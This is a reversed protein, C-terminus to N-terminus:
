VDHGEGLLKGKLEHAKRRCRLVRVRLAGESVDFHQSMEQYSWGELILTWLRRCDRSSRALVRRLLDRSVSTRQAGPNQWSITEGNQELEQWRWKYGARIQRLCAHNVIWSLYTRLSSEGRFKKQQFLRTIELRLDQLVDEFRGELRRQFPRAAAAIWGDVIALAERDADLFRAMLEADSGTVSASPDQM